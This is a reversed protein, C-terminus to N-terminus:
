SKWVLKPIPLLTFSFIGSKGWAFIIAVVFRQRNPFMICFSCKPFDLHITVAGEDRETRM